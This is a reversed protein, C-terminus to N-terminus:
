RTTKQTALFELLDAIQQDPLDNLQRDPMLSVTQQILDEVDDRAIRIDENMATRLVVDSETREVLLGAHVKGATTIVTWAAYKPDIKKSPELLSELIEERKLRKGVDDLAPGIQGGESGIKHCTICQRSKDAFIAAGRTADGSTALITAADPTRNLTRRYEAPQFRVFLNRIEPVAERAAALLEAKKDGELRNDDLMAVVRLAAETSKLADAIHAPPQSAEGSEHSDGDLSVIWNRLLRVGAADVETSGIHPMRGRGSCATRYLLVSKSPQGPVIIAGGDIQFLGQAPPAAISKMEEVSAEFRLDITATGGAGNQHCHSCNISLYSRARDALDAHEDYPNALALM